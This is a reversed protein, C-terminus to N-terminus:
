WMLCSSGGSGAVRGCTTRSCKGTSSPPISAPPPLQRDEGGDEPPEDGGGRVGEARQHGEAPGAGDGRTPLEARHDGGRQVLPPGPAPHLHRALLHRAHPPPPAVVCHEMHVAPPRSEGWWQHHLSPPFPIADGERGKRGQRAPTDPPHVAPALAARRPPFPPPLCPTLPAEPPTGARPGPTEGM